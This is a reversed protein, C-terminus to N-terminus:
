GISPYPSRCCGQMRLLQQAYFIASCSCLQVYICVRRFEIKKGNQEYASLAAFQPKSPEAADTAATSTDMPVPAVERLPTRTDKKSVKPMNTSQSVDLVSHSSTSKRTTAKNFSDHLYVCPKRNLCCLASLIRSIHLRTCRAISTQVTCATCLAAIPCALSQLGLEPNTMLQLWLKSFHVLRYTTRAGRTQRENDDSQKDFM